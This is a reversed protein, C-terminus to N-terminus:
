SSRKEVENKDDIKTSRPHWKQRRKPGKQAGWNRPGCSVTPGLVVCFSGHRDLVTDLGGLLGELRALLKELPGLSEGLSSFYMGLPTSSGGLAEWSGGLVGWTEGIKSLFDM